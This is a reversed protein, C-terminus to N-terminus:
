QEVESSRTLNLNAPGMRDLKPRYRFSVFM